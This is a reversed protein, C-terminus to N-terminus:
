PSGGGTPSRTKVPKRKRVKNNSAPPSSARIASQAAARRAKEMQDRFHAARKAEEVGLAEGILGGAPRHAVLEVAIAVGAVVDARFEVWGHDKGGTAREGYSTYFHVPGSFESLWAKRGNVRSMMGAMRGLPTSANPDSRDEIDYEEGWVKGEEDIEIIDMTNHFDKTQYDLGDAGEVPLPYKCRLYDFMGM